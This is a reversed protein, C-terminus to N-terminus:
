SARAGPRRTLRSIRERLRGFHAVEASDRLVAEQYMPSLATQCEHRFVIEVYLGEASHREPHLRAIVVDRTRLARQVRTGVIQDDEVSPAVRFGEEVLSRAIMWLAANQSTAAL